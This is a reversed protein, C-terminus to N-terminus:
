DYDVVKCHVGAFGRRPVGGGGLSDSFYMGHKNPKMDHNTSSSMTSAILADVGWLWVQEDNLIEYVTNDMAVPYDGRILDVVGSNASVVQKLALLSSRCVHTSPVLLNVSALGPNPAPTGSMGVTDEHICVTGRYAKPARATCLESFVNELELPRDDSDHSYSM